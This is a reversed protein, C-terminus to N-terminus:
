PQQAAPTQSLDILQIHRGPADHQLQGVLAALRPSIVVATVPVGIALILARVAENSAAPLRGIYFGRSIPIGANRTLAAAFLSVAYNTYANDSLLVTVGSPAPGYHRVVQATLTGLRTLALRDSVWAAGWNGAPVGSATAQMPRYPSDSVGLGVGVAAALLVSPLALALRNRNRARRSPVPLLTTVSVLGILLLIQVAHLSKEFYYGPHGTIVKQYLGLLFVDGLLCVAVWRYRRWLPSRRGLPALVGAAVILTLAAMASRSNHFGGAVKLSETQGGALVGLAMPFLALAGTVACCATVFVPGPLRGRRMVLWVVSALGMGPLFLYYTFGIAVLLSGVVLLQTRRAAVPRALVAVLAAVLTMGAIESPYGDVFDAMLEGRVCLASVLAVVPLWRWASHLARGGVWRAAWLVTLTMLAYGAVHFGILHNFATVASRDRHPLFGDILASVLHFGQPYRIMGSYVYDRAEGPHLFLYGGVQHVGDFLTVHRALDEGAMALGLRGALDARLYPVALYLGVGAAAAATVGDPVTPRPLSPRRGTIAALAVLVSLGLGGVPVPALGWPWVSLLLGAACTVGLLLCLALMLRDLLSRGARLLSATGLLVAPLIVYDAGLAHVGVPVAWALGVLGILAGVDAPTVPRARDAARRHRSPHTLPLEQTKERIATSV